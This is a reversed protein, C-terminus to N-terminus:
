QGDCRKLGDDLGDQDTPAQAGIHLVGAAVAQAEFVELGLLEMPEVRIEGDALHLLLVLAM